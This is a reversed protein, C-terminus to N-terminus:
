IQVELTRADTGCQTDTVHARAAGCRLTWADLSGVSPDPSWNKCHMILKHYLEVACTTEAPTMTANRVLAAPNNPVNWSDDSGLCALM